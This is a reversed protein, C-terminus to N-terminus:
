QPPNFPLHSQFFSSGHHAASAIMFKPAKCLLQFSLFTHLILASWWCRTICLYGAVAIKGRAGAPTRSISPCRGRFCVSGEETGFSVLVGCLLVPVAGACQWCLVFRKREWRLSWRLSIFLGFVSASLLCGGQASRWWQFCCLGWLNRSSLLATKDVNYCCQWPSLLCHATVQQM